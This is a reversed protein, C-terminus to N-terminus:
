RCERIQINILNGAIEPVAPRNHSFYYLRYFEPHDDINLPHKELAAFCVANEIQARFNVGGPEGGIDFDIAITEPLTFRASELDERRAGRIVLSGNCFVNAGGEKGAIFEDTLGSYTVPQNHFIGLARGRAPNLSIDNIEGFRINEGGDALWAVPQNRNIDGPYDIMQCHEEGSCAPYSSVIDLECLAWRADVSPTLRLVAGSCVADGSRINEPDGSLMEGSVLSVRMGPRFVMDTQFHFEPLSAQFDARLSVGDRQPCSAGGDDAVGSDVVGSDSADREEAELGSRAGCAPAAMLSALLVAKGAFAKARGAFGSTKERKLKM